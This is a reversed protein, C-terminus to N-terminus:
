HPKSNGTTSIAANKKKIRALTLFAEDDIGIWSTDDALFRRQRPFHLPKFATVGWKEALM